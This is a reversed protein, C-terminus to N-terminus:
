GKDPQQFYSVSRQAFIKNGIRSSWFAAEPNRSFGRHRERAIQRLEGDKDRHTTEFPTAAKPLTARCPLIQRLEQPRDVEM